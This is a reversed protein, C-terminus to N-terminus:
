AFPIVLAFARLHPRAPKGQLQIKSQTGESPFAEEETMGMGEQGWGLGQWHPPWDLACIILGLHANADLTM